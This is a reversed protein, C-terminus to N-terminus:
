AGRLEVTSNSSRSRSLLGTAMKDCLVRSWKRMCNFHGGITLRLRRRAITRYVKADENKAPVRFM